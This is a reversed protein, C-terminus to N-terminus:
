AFIEFIKANPQGSGMEFILGIQCMQIVLVSIRGFISESLEDGALLMEVSVEESAESSDKSINERRWLIIEMSPLM